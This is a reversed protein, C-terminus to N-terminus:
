RLTFGAQLRARQKPDTAAAVAAMALGYAGDLVARDAGESTGFSAFEATHPTAGHTEYGVLPHIAAVLHSVNGMDTSAAPADLLPVDRGRDTMAAAYSEALFRDQRLDAFDHGQPEIELTAGSALAGAELCARIKTQILELTEATPARMEVRAHARAPIINVATGGELVVLSVIAGAPLQQRALGIATQAVVVADLANVGAAPNMAAHAPVGSFYADWCGLALSASGVGDTDAAHGMLALHVGSFFGENILDVKGGTTEEAPTGFVAVTLGLQDAVDALALAAAVAMAGNVNHGCAHGIGPLADYEVCVAVVLDGGGTTAHFATPSGPQHDPFDFGAEALVTRVRAASRHENGGLEPDAHLCHSLELVTSRERELTRTITSALVQTRTGADHQTRPPNM